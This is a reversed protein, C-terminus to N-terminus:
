GDSVVEGRTLQRVVSTLRRQAAAADDAATLASAASATSTSPTTAQLCLSLSLPLLRTHPQPPCAGAVGLAALRSSRCAHCVRPLADSPRCGARKGRERWNLAAPAPATASFFVARWERVQEEGGGRRRRRGTGEVDMVALGQPILFNRAHGPRVPVAEGPGGLGDVPVTLRVTVRTSAPRIAHSLASAVRGSTSTTATSRTSALLRAATAWM